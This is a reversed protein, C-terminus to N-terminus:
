EDEDESPVEFKKRITLINQGNEFNYLMEDVKKKVFYIGLGGQKRKCADLTIDPDPKELPNYPVGSDIFTIEISNDKPFLKAILSARGVKGKDKYAYSAINVFLEEVVIFIHSLEIQSVKLSSIIRDIFDIVKPLNDVHADIDLRYQIEKSNKDM